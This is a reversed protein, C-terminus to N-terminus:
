NLINLKYGEGYVNEIINQPIKKRLNTVLSKLSNKVDKEIEDVWLIDCIEDYSKLGYPNQSLLYIFNKERKTLTIEENNVYLAKKSIDFYSNNSFKLIDKNVIVFKQIQELALSIAEQLKFMDVPKILYKTIYLETSKILYEVEDHSTLFILKCNKDNIRIKEAMELGNMIPMNIDSIIVDPKFIEYASLGAKGNKATRVDYFDSLKNYYFKLNFEDDEVILIKIM